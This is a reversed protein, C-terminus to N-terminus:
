KENLIEFRYGKFEEGSQAYKKITETSMKLSLGLETIGKYIKEENNKYVKIEICNRRHLNISRKLKEITNQNEIQDRKNAWRLNVLRNDNYDSNIHDVEPKNEPNLVNFAMLMLRYIKFGKSKENNKRLGIGNINNKLIEKKANRVRGLNSVEYNVYQNVEPYVSDKLAVWVEGELSNHNRPNIIQWKFGKHHPSQGDSCYQVHRPTFGDNKVEKWHKYIKKIIGTKIDIKNIILDKLGESRRYKVSHQCNESPTAWELMCVRNDTKGGLHNVEPKNEPNPIFALAVLQHIRFHKKIKVGDIIKTLKLETYGARNKWGNCMKTKNCYKSRVRGMNSVEYNPYDKVVRWEEVTEENQVVEAM